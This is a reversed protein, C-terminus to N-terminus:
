SGSATNGACAPIIGRDRCVWQEDGQTGRVRPSSGLDGAIFGYDEGHEGCVRPHDWRGFLRRMPCDTNGACAPIIGPLKRGRSCVHHTGRVRPSSGAFVHHATKPIRHEGCVRPHDGNSELCQFPTATNGACAPIIGAPPRVPDQRGPTGRVRPSSGSTFHISARCLSTNGACAPIIGERDPTGSRNNHTGRVRPSSGQSNNILSNSIKHEGCVRPHDRRSPASPTSGRTNGACAPIIGRNSSRCMCRHLTGRVRPSSGLERMILYEDEEHEGCVRPHDRPCETSEGGIYTNGACAPIIGYLDLWERMAMRTGRVRPSSGQPWNDFWVASDHEGCVRPHDRREMCVATRASTNGACAPIIGASWASQRERRRTGRVRPSSGAMTSRVRALRLHEGCVRPHDRCPWCARRCSRTNGACAPIIGRVLGRSGDFAHTGRVRPSSGLPPLQYGTALLHEGCM